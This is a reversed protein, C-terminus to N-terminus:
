HLQLSRPQGDHTWTLMTSKGSLTLGAIVQGAGAAATDVVRTGGDDDVYLSETDCGTGALQCAPQDVATSSYSALGGGPAHSIYVRAGILLVTLVCLIAAKRLM